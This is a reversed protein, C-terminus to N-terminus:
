LNGIEDSYSKTDDLVARNVQSKVVQFVHAGKCGGKDQRASGGEPWTLLPLIGSSGCKFKEM